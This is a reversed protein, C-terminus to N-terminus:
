LDSHLVVHLYLNFSLLFLSFFSFFFLFFLFSHLSLSMFLHLLSSYFHNLHVKLSSLLCQVCHAILITLRGVTSPVALIEMNSSWLVGIACRLSNLLMSIVPSTGLLFHCYTKRVHCERYAWPKVAEKWIQPNPVTLDECLCQAWWPRESATVERSVVIVDWIYWGLVFFPSFALHRSNNSVYSTYMYIYM